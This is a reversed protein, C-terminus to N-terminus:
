RATALLAEVDLTRELLDALGDLARDVAAGYDLAAGAPAGLGALYARRFADAAFLGHVYCGEVRGDASRAGDPRPGALGDLEVLPRARDPGETRGMHMEYGAIPCGSPLHRGTVEELSKDGAM